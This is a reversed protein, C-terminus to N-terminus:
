QVKSLQYLLGRHDGREAFLNPQNPICASQPREGKATKRLALPQLAVPQHFGALM